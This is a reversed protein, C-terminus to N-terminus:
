RIIRFDNFPADLEIESCEVSEVQSLPSGKKLISKFRELDDSDLDAVAVVSGDPLNKVYGRIGAASAADAVHKRYWVGQVVGKVICRYRKM